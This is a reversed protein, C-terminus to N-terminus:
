ISTAVLTFSIVLQSMSFTEWVRPNLINLLEIFGFLAKTLFSRCKVIIRITSHFSGKRLRRYNSGLWGCGFKGLMVGGGELLRVWKGKKWVRGFEGLKM